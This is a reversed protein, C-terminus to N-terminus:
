FVTYFLDTPTRILLHSPSLGKSIPVHLELAAQLPQFKWSSNRLISFRNAGRGVLPQSDKLRVHRDPPM